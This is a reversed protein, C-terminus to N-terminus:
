SNQGDYELREKKIQQIYFLKIRLTLELAITLKSYPDHRVEYGIHEGGQRVRFWASFFPTAQICATGNEHEKM